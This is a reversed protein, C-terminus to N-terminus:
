LKKLIYLIQMVYNYIMNRFLTVIINLKVESM